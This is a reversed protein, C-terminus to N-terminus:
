DRLGRCAANSGAYIVRWTFIAEWSSTISNIQGRGVYYPKGNIWYAATPISSIGASVPANGTSGACYINEGSITISKFIASPDNITTMVDNKWYSSFGAIYIDDSSAYLANVGYRFSTTAGNKWVMSQNNDYGGVYVDQGTVAITTADSQLTDLAFGAGNKWYMALTPGGTIPREHGAFYIDNNKVAM